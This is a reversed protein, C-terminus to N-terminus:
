FILWPVTDWEYEDVESGLYLNQSVPILHGNLTVTGTVYYDDFDEPIPIIRLNDIWATDTRETELENKEYEFAIEGGSYPLTVEEWDFVGSCTYILAGDISVTVFSWGEETSCKVNFKLWYSGTPINPTARMWSVGENDIEGFRASHTGDFAEEDTVIPLADGGLSWDWDANSFDGTEFSETLISVLPAPAPSAEVTIYFFAEETEVPKTFEVTGGPGVTQKQFEDGDDKGVIKATYQGPKEPMTIEASFTSALNVTLLTDEGVVVGKQTYTLQEELRSGIAKYSPGSIYVDYTDPDIGLFNVPWGRLDSLAYYSPKGRRKLSVNCFPIGFTEDKCLVIVKLNGGLDQRTSATQQVAALADIRGYGTNKDYGPVDLDVASNEILKRMEYPTADPYKQYLLAALGSVHPSAMSTGNYYAYPLGGQLTEPDDMGITSLIREGPAVVSVSDGRSSFDTLSDNVTSAGVGLVGPFNNPYGWNESIHSNGTSVVVIAGERLAYDIGRKLTHSYGEGGWSNQLIKAGHDVAWIWAELVKLDGIYESKPGYFIPIPMIKADPAVGVIGERNDRVAAITGSVHTGHSDYPVSEGAPIEKELVADYGIVYQGALDPHSADSGDDCVAVIVGEGTYGLAWAAEANIKKLGWLYDYFPDDTTRSQTLISRQTTPQNLERKYSPEIYRIGEISKGKLKELTVAVDNPIQLEAVNIQPLARRIEAGLTRALAELSELHDYGVLLTHALVEYGDYATYSVAFPYPEPLDEPPVPNTDAGTQRICGTFVLAIIFFVSFITILKKM